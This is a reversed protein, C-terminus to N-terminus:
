ALRVAAGIVSLRAPSRSRSPPDMSVASISFPVAAFPTRRVSTCVASPATPTNESRGPGTCPMAVPTAPSVPATESAAPANRSPAGFTAANLSASPSMPGRDCFNPPAIMRVPESSVPGQPRASPAPTTASPRNELALASAWAWTSANVLAISASLPAIPM